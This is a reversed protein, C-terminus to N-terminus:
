LLDYSFEPYGREGDESELRNFKLKYYNGESDQIIFYRDTYLTPGSSPGGGARWNEGFADIETNFEIGELNSSTFDDYAIDDIMVMSIETEHRNLVIFDKFGYAIDAGPAGFNLVETYTSYVFDWSAKPPIANVIGNDLDVSIFNYTDDKNIELSSFDGSNIDAYQLTYGEGNRLVRVKKWNRGEGDRKIIFVKNDSDTESIDGFATTELNGDPTDIWANSGVPGSFGVVMESGFDTTDAAIVETLDDSELPRAMVYASSNLIVKFEGSVTYFGLDWSYKDIVTQSLKSLDIFAQNPFEEGGGNMELTGNNALFNESITITVSTNEGLDFSEANALTLTVTEDEAINLASGAYVSFSITEDGEEFTIAVEGDVVDPDVYYDADQGYELGSDGVSVVIAGDSEAPRSLAVQVQVSEILGLETNTFSLSIPISGGGDDSGCSTLLVMVGLATMMMMRRVNKKM